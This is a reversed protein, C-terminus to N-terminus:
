ESCIQTIKYFEPVSIWVVVGDVVVEVVVNDVVWTEDDVDIFVVEVEGEVVVVVEKGM